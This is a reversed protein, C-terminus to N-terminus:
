MQGADPQVKKRYFGMDAIWLEFPAEKPPRIGLSFLETTLLGTGPVNGTQTLDVNPVRNPYASQTFDPWPITYLVWDSTVSMVYDYSNTKNNGCENPLRTAIAAGSITAGPNNPDQYVTITSGQVGGDPIAYVTCNGGETTPTNNADYLSITFGKSGNGPARAWFSLGQYASEDRPGFTSGNCTSGWDNCHSSTLVQASQNGCLGNGDLTVVTAGASADPTSDFYCAFTITPPNPDFDYQDDVSCNSSADPFTPYASCGVAGGLGLLLLLQARSTRKLSM